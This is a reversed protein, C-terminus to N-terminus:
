AREVDLALKKEASKALQALLPSYSPDTHKRTQPDSSTDRAVQTLAVGAHHEDTFIDVTRQHRSMAVYAFQRSLVSRAGGLLLYTHASTSGQASHVTMAYGRRIADYTTGSLSRTTILRIEKEGDLQVAMQETGLSKRIAWITGRDGRELNLRRCRERFLIRDGVFLQEGAVTLQQGADLVGAQLRQQQALSNLHDVDSNTAACILHDSPNNIGGQRRWQDVLEHRADQITKGVHLKGDRAYSHLVERIEGRALRRVREREQPRLQRRIETLECYGFRAMISGFPGGAEIAPLQKKDGVCILVGEGKAVAKVLLAMDRTGVMSSEDLVVLTRPTIKLRPFRHTSLGRAARVLQKVHHKAVRWPRPYLQLITSRLTNSRIGSESQLKKAAVGALACGYVQYGQKQYVHRIVRLLTTKGTGAYGSISKIKGPAQTAYKVAARAEDSLRVPERRNATLAREVKAVARNVARDSAARFRGEHLSKTALLLEEEVRLVGPTTYHLDGRHVGLPVTKRNKQLDIAVSQRVFDADLGPKDLAEELTALL